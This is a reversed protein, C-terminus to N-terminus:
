EEIADIRFVQNPEVSLVRDMDKSGNPNWSRVRIKKVGEPVKWVASNRAPVAAAATALFPLSALGALIGRKNM